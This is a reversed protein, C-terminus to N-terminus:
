SSFEPTQCTAEMLPVPDDRTELRVRVTTGLGPESEFALSGGHAAIVRTVLPLGLGTGTPKTSYFPLTIRELEAQPIGVGSDVIEIVVHEPDTGITRLVLRGAGHMAEAGNLLLNLLAQELRKRDARVRVDSVQYDRVVTIGELSPHGSLQMLTGDLLEPLLLDEMELTVPKALTFLDRMTEGLLELQENVAGMVRQGREDLVYEQELLGLATRVTALPRKFEHAMEAALEGVQALGERQELQQRQEAALAAAEHGQQVLEAVSTELQRLEGGSAPDGGMLENVRELPAVVERELMTFLVVALALVSGIMLGLGLRAGRDMAARLPAVSFEVELLAREPIQLPLFAHVTTGDEGARVFGNAPLERASPLWIGARRRSEEGANSSIVVEGGAGYVRAGIVATSEGLQRLTRRAQDRRDYRLANEVGSRAAGAALLAQQEAAALAESKWYRFSLHTSGGLLAVGAGILTILLKTRLPLQRLRIAWSMAGM